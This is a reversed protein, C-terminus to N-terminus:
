GVSNEVAESRLAAELRQMLQDRGIGTPIPELVRIHITGYRKHFARRGWYQGSENVVPIVPLRTRAALAAIRASRCCHRAGGRARPSSSSRADRASQGDGDRMLGRLAGGGGGRDVAIMGALPILPGLL